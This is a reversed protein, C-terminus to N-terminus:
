QQANGTLTSATRPLRILTAFDEDEPNKKECRLEVLQRSEHRLAGHGAKFFQKDSYGERDRWTGDFLDVYTYLGQFQPTAESDADPM